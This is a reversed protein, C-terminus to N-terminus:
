VSDLTSDEFHGSQDLEVTANYVGWLCHVSFLPTTICCDIATSCLKSETKYCFPPGVEWNWQLSYDGQVFCLNHIVYILFFDADGPIREHTYFWSSIQSSYVRQTSGERIL